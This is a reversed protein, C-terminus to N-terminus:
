RQLKWVKTKNDAGEYVVALHDSELVELIGRGRFMRKNDVFNEGSGIIYVDIGQSSDLLSELALGTGIVPTGTYQDVLRNDRLVAFRMADDLERLYYDIKGLYYTQQLVDEAILITDPTLDLNQVFDAAGKHDPYRDYNPNVSNWLEYPNVIAVAVAMLAGLMPRSGGLGDKIWGRQYAVYAIGAFVCLLFLGFQAQAYRPPMYWTIFGLVLLPVWVAMGFFLFHVPLSRGGIFLKISYLIIGAYIIGAVPSYELFRLIPWISPAGIVAGILKRGPYLGSGALAWLHVFAISAATLLIVVIWARPLGQIRLWFIIGLALLLGGVHYQLFAMALLGAVVMLVPMSGSLVRRSGANKLIAIALLVIVSISVFLFWKDGTVFVEFPAQTDVEPLPPPREADQPYKSAIWNSYLVYLLGGAGLAVIGQVLQKWSQRSMGPYLFLPAVFVGLRHFHLCIAWILLALILSTLKQDREWRFLCAVFWIVCTVFFVYMRATQSIEIMSPLLTITAVFVLNFQPSLFRRGMFFAALGTLSGIIASPLRLAWESEGFLWVSGSMLYIQLLARAYYMGSPLLPQGNDLISMAPMAMTEEDGHLGVNELGWFRLIAGIVLIGGLALYDSRYLNQPADAPEFWRNLLAFMLQPVM